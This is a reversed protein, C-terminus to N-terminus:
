TLTGFAFRWISDLFTWGLPERRWLFTLTYSANVMHPSQPYVTSCRIIWSHKFICAILGCM